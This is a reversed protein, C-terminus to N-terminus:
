VCFPLSFLGVTATEDKVLNLQRTFEEELTVSRRPQLRCELPDVRGSSDSTTRRCEAPSDLFHQQQQRQQQRQAHYFHLPSTRRRSGLTTTSLFPSNSQQHQAKRKHSTGDTHLLPMTMVSTFNTIILDKDDTLSPMLMSENEQYELEDIQYYYEIEAFSTPPSYSTKPPPVMMTTCLICEQLRNTSSSSPHMPLASAMTTRHRNHHSLRRRKHSFLGRGLVPENLHFRYNNRTKNYSCIGEPSGISVWDEEEEEEEEKLTGNSSPYLMLSKAGQEKKAEERRVRRDRDMELISRTCDAYSLSTSPLSPSSSSIPSYSTVNNGDRTCLALSIRRHHSSPQPTAPPSSYSISLSSSPQLM